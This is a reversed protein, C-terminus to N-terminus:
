KLKEYNRKLMIKKKIHFKMAFIPLKELNEVEVFRSKKCKLFIFITNSVRSSSTHAHSQQERTTRREIKDM